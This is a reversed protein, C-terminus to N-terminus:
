KQGSGVVFIILAGYLVIYKPHSFLQISTQLDCQFSIKSVLCAEYIHINWSCCLYKRTHTNSIKNHVYITMKNYINNM